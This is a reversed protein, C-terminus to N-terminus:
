ADCARRAQEQKWKQRVKEPDKLWEQYELENEPQQFFARIDELLAFALPEYFPQQGCMAGEVRILSGEQRMM